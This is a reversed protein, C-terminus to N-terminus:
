NNVRRRQDELFEVREKLDIISNLIREDMGNATAERVEVNNIRISDILSVVDSKFKEEKSYLKGLEIHVEDIDVGMKNALLKRLSEKSSDKEKLEKIHLDVQENVYDELFPEGLYVTLSIMAMVSGAIAGLSKIKETM